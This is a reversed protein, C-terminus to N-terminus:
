SEPTPGLIANVLAAGDPTYDQQGPDIEPWRRLAEAVLASGIGRRQRRPHVMVNVNGAREWPPMDVPYHYLIGTVTGKHSRHVLCDVPSDALVPVHAGTHRHTVRAVEVHNQEYTIGAPGKNPFQREQSAWTYAMAPITPTVTM